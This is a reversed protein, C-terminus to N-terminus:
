CARLLNTYLFPNLPLHRLSKLNDTGEAPRDTGTTKLVHSPNESYYFDALGLILNKLLYVKRPM